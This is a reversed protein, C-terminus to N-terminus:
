PLAGVREIAPSSEDVLSNMRHVKQLPHASTWALDHRKGGGQDMRTKFRLIGDRCRQSKFIALQPRNLGGCRTMGTEIKRKLDGPVTSSGDQHVVPNAVPAKAFFKGAILRDSIALRASLNAATSGVWPGDGAFSM